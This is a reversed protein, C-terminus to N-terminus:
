VGSETYYYNYDVVVNFKNSFKEPLNGDKSLITPNTKESM